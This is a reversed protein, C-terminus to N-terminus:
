TAEAPTADVTQAARAPPFMPDPFGIRQWGGRDRNGGYAPDGYTAECAHDHLMRRDAETADGAAVRAYAVRMADIRQAWAAREWAGLELWEAGSAEPAAWIRPPDHDLATLLQEVYAVAGLDSAGPVQADLAAAVVIRSAEDFVPQTTSGGTSM